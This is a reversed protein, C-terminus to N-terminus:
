SLEPQDHREASRSLTLEAHGSSVAAGIGELLYYGSGDELQYAGSGDELLYRGSTKDQVTRRSLIRAAAGRLTVALSGLLHWVADCLAARDEVHQAHVV